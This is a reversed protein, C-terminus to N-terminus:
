GCPVFQPIAHLELGCTLAFAYEQLRAVDTPVFKAFPNRAILMPTTAQANVFVQHLATEMDVATTCVFRAAAILDRGGLSALAFMSRPTVSEMNLVFIQALPNDAILAM